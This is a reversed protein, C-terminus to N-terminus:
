LEHHYVGQYLALPLYSEFAEQAASRRIKGSTTRPLVGWTVFVIRDLRLGYAATVASNARDALAAFDRGDGARNRTELVAVLHDGWNIVAAPSGILTPDSQCLNAELDEAGYNVGRVIVQDKIRGVVYLNGDVLRGLDGTRLWNQGQADLSFGSLNAADDRWYGPTIHPGRLLIEGSEGPGVDGLTAPDVLRLGPAFAAQGCSTAGGHVRLGRGTPGGAVLLTAEAMGYCPFIARRHFGVPALLDAFRTLSAARVPEAGCFAVQWSSLDLDELDQPRLQKSILEYAFNPAGSITARYTSVAQLWRLPRQMFAYPSMLWVPSGLWVPQLLQGVLGMDHFAPLWTVSRTAGDSCFATSIMQMNAALNGHTIIVGKPTGTSGSTFQLFAIDDLTVPGLGDGQVQADQLTDFGIIDIDPMHSFAARLGLPAQNSPVVVARAQASQAILVLRDVAKTQLPYPVPVAIAGSLFCGFFAVIFELGAPFALLVPQGRLGKAVLAQAITSAQARLAEFSLTGEPVEGRKLFTIALHSGREVAWRALRDNLSDTQNILLAGRWIVSVGM